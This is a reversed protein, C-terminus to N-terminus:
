AARRKPYWDFMAPKIHPYDAPDAPLMAIGEPDIDVGARRAEAVEFRLRWGALDDTVAHFAALVEGTERDVAEYIM